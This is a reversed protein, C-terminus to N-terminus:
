CFLQTNELSERLHLLGNSALLTSSCPRVIPINKPFSLFEGGSEEVLLKGAAFDWPYLGRAIFGDAKGTAVYALSLAASGFDRFSVGKQKLPILGNCVMESSSIGAILYGKEIQTNLSVHQRKSRYTTGNGRTAVFLEDTLPHYIVASLGEEGKYAAISIAFFPIHHIFNSTGDLPDIIWLMEGLEDGRFYGSEEALIHHHPFTNKITSIICIEAARDLTTVLDKASSKESIEYPGLFGNRLIDAARYAAEIAVQTLKSLFQNETNDM